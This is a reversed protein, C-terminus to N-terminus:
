WDKFRKETKEDFEFFLKEPLLVLRLTISWSGFTEDNLDTDDDEDVELLLFRFAPPM